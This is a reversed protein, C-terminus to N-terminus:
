RLPHHQRNVSHKPPMALLPLTLTPHEETPRLRAERDSPEKNESKQKKPKKREPHGGGENRNQLDRIPVESPWPCGYDVM